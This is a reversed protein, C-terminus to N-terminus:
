IGRAVRADVCAGGQRPQTFRPHRYKWINESRAAASHHHEALTSGAPIAPACAPASACDLMAGRRRGLRQGDLQGLAAIGEGKLDGVAALGHHRRWGREVVADQGDESVGILRDREGLQSRLGFDTGGRDVLADTCKGRACGLGGKVWAPMEM